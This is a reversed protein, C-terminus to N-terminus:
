VAKARQKTRLLITTPYILLSIGASYTILLTFSALDHGSLALVTLILLAILAPMLSLRSNTSLFYNNILYILSCVTGFIAASPLLPVLASFQAGMLLIIFWNGFYTFGLYATIGAFVIIMFSLSLIRSPSTIGESKDTFYVLAVQSLPIFTYTIAKAFLSWAGYLGAEGDTLFRKALVVDGNSLLIIGLISLFTLMLTPVSFLTHLRSSSDFARPYHHHLVFLSFIFQILSALILSIIVPPLLHFIPASLAGLLKIIGMILTSFAFATFLQGATLFAAYLQALIFIFIFLPLTLYTVPNLGTFFGLLAIFLYVLFLTIPRSLLTFFFCEFSHILNFKDQTTKQEGIRKIILVTAVTAPVGFIMSYAIMTTIESYTAPGLGRGAFIHFAYGLLNIALTASTVISSNAIFSM